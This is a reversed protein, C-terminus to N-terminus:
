TREKGVRREESRGNDNHTDGQDDPIDTGSLSVWINGIRDTEVGMIGPLDKAILTIKDKVPTVEPKECSCPLLCLLLIFSSISFPLFFSSNKTSYDPLKM